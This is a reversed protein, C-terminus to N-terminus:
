SKPCGERSLTRAVESCPSIAGISGGDAPSSSSSARSRSSQLMQSSSEMASRCAVRTTTSRRSTASGHWGSSQRGSTNGFFGVVGVIAVVAYVLSRRGTAAGVAIALAGFLTGLLALHLGGAALNSPGIEGLEAAGSIALLALALVTCVILMGLVFAAFRQTLVAWRSVPHALTLDLRGSEEDGAIAAGGLAAAMVIILAPGLLGFTTSGLYGAATAIDAFGMADLVGPPFSELMDLYQPSNIAPYFAAYGVGVATIGIAWGFLVRRQDWLTKTFVSRLM